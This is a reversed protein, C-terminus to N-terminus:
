FFKLKLKKIVGLCFEFNRSELITTNGQLLLYLLGTAAWKRRSSWPKESCILDVM